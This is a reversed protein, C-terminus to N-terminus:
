AAVFLPNSWALRRHADELELYVYPWDMPVQFEARTVAQGDEAAVRLGRYAPGVLRAFRVPSCEVVLREGDYQLNYIEPGTSAYFNGERLAALIAEPACEAANVVVWGQNLEPDGPNAHADDSAIALTNPFRGLLANWYAGGGGKGNLWQCVHNYVEVGDFQWRAAEEFTNGMWQPHALILLANQARAAELASSMGMERSIGRLTGLAVV